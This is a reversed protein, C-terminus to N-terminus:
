MTWGLHDMRYLLETGALAPNDRLFKEIADATGEHDNSPHTGNNGHYSWTWRRQGSTTPQIPM